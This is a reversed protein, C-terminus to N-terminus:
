GAGLLQIGSDGEGGLNKWLSIGEPFSQRGQFNLSYIVESLNVKVEGRLYIKFPSRRLSDMLPKEMQHDTSNAPPIPSRSQCLSLGTVWHRDTSFWILVHPFSSLWRSPPQGLRAGLFPRWSGDFILECEPLCLIDKMELGITPFRIQMLAPNSWCFDRLWSRSLGSNQNPLDEHGRFFASLLWLSVVSGVEAGRLSACVWWYEVVDAGLGTWM